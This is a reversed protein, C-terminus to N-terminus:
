ALLRVVKGTVTQNLLHTNQSLSRLTGRNVVWEQAPDFLVYCQM